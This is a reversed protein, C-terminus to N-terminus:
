SFSFNYTLLYRTSLSLHSSVVVTVDGNIIAKECSNCGNPGITNEPGTCGYVCNQHCPKCEGGVSYKSSPCVPVCFPGDRAHKCRTCNGPGPGHCTSECEEHCPMCLKESSKYMRSCPISMLSYYHIIM